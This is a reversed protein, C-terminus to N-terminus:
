DSPRVTTTRRLWFFLDRSIGGPGKQGDSNYCVEARSAACSLRSIWIITARHRQLLLRRVVTFTWDRPRPGGRMNPYRSMRRSRSRCRASAAQTGADAADGSRLRPGRDAARDRRRPPWPRCQRPAAAAVDPSKQPHEEETEGRAQRIENQAPMPLDEFKPMRRRAFRRGSPPRRSSPRPRRRSRPRSARVDHDPFLSPKQAIPRVTVDGYSAPQLPAVRGAPSGSCGGRRDRGAGAREVSSSARQPAAPAAQVPRLSGAEPRREALRANDARLRATLDALRTDPASAPAPAAPAVANTM